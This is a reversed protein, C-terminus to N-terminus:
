ESEPFPIEKSVTWRQGSRRVVRLTRGREHTATPVRIDAPLRVWGVPTRTWFLEQIPTVLFFADGPAAPGLNWHLVSGRRSLRVHLPMTPDYNARVIEYARAAAPPPKMGRIFLGPLSAVADPAQDGKVAKRLWQIGEIYWSNAGTFLAPAGPPANWLYLGDRQWLTMEKRLRMGHRVGGSAIAICLAAFAITEISRLPARSAALAACIVVVAAAVFFYRSDVSSLGAIPIIVFVASVAVTVIAALPVRRAALAFLLVALALVGLSALGETGTIIAWGEPSLTQGAASGYGGFSGLMYLRWAIYVVAVVGCLATNRLLIKRGRRLVFDQLVVLLPLPVFVEKEICAILYLVAASAAAAGHERRFLILALAAFLMGEVYHRDMLLTAVTFAPQSLAVAAAALLAVVETAFTRVYAYLALIALAFVILHHAYFWRPNVGFLALDTEYALALMPTFSASTLERWAAPSTFHEGVRFQMAGYLHQPDDWLWWQRLVSGHALSVIIVLLAVAALDRRM